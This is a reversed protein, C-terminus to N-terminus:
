GAVISEWTAGEFNALVRVAGAERLEAASHATSLGIPHTGARRAAEVGVLSDEFVACARPAVRLGSAAALFVEPDPKGREVDEATVVVPFESTLGLGRLAATVSRSSSSSALARPVNEAELARVFTIAGPVPQFRGGALRHYLDTKRKGYRAIEEPSLRRDLLVPLAEEVPRGITLRWFEGDSPEAGLEKLLARWAARHHAGSDVLVGDLDFIAAKLPSGSM